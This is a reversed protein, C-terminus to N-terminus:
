IVAEYRREVGRVVRDVFESAAVRRRDRMGQAYVYARSVMEDRCILFRRLAEALSESDGYDFGVGIGAATVESEHALGRSLLLPKGASIADSGVGSKMHAYRASDYPLLIADCRSFADGYLESELAGMLLVVNSNTEALAALRARAGAVGADGDLQNVQVLFRFSNWEVGASVIELLFDVLFIFGKARSSVGLYGIWVEDSPGRTLKPAVEPAPIPVTVIPYQFRREFDSAVRLSHALYGVRRSVGILRWLTCELLMYSPARDHIVFRVHYRKGSSWNLVIWLVYAVISRPSSWAVLFVADDVDRTAKFLDVFHWLNSWCLRFAKGLGATDLLPGTEHLSATRSRFCRVYRIYGDLGPAYSRHAFVSIPINRAKCEAGLGLAYNANHGSWDKLNDDILAVMMLFKSRFM